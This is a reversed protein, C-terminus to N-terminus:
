RTSEFYDVHLFRLLRASITVHGTAFRSVTGEATTIRIPAALVLERVESETV